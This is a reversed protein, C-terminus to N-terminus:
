SLLFILLQLSTNESLTEKFVGDWDSFDQGNHYNDTNEFLEESSEFWSLDISYTIELGSKDIINIDDHYGTTFYGDTDGSYGRVHDLGPLTRQIESLTKEKLRELLEKKM